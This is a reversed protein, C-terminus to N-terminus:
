SGDWPRYTTGFRRYPIVVSAAYYGLFACNENVQPRFGSILCNEIQELRHAGWVACASHPQKRTKYCLLLPENVSCVSGLRASGFRNPKSFLGVNHFPRM